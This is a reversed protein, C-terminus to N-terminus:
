HWKNWFRKSKSSLPPNNNSFNNNFVIFIRISIFHKSFIFTPYFSCPYVAPLSKEPVNFPSRSMFPIWNRDRFFMQSFCFSFSRESLTYLGGYFYYWNAQTSLSGDILLYLVYLAIIINIIFINIPCPSFKKPVFFHSTQFHYLTQTHYTDTTKHFGIFLPYTVTIPNQLIPKQEHVRSFPLTTLACGFFPLISFFLLTM